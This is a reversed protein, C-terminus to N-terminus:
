KIVKAEHLAKIEEPSLGIESMVEDTDAGLLPANKHAPPAIEGFQAPPSVLMFRGAATDVPYLYHNALAQEDKLLDIIHPIVSHPIDEKLLLDHWEPITKQAVKKEIADILETCNEVAHARDIYRPDGIYQTLDLLRMLKEFNKEYDFASIMMWEGDSGQYTNAIPNYQKRSRPHLKENGPIQTTISMWGTSWVSEGFLSFMVKEGKGTKLKQYLAAAIAGAFEPGAHLDGIAIPPVMPSEGREVFDVLKGTRCWYATTDYGPTDKDPGTIGFGSLHAWIIHPFKKSMTEYDLGFKKLAKIRNNTLFVDAGALLKDMVAAAGPNKLDLCISRKNANFMEFGPGVGNTTPVRMGSDDRRNIDGSFPEVKIVDAGWDGLIRASGPAAGNNDLEIVRVGTLPRSQM